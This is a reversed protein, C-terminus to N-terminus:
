TASTGEEVVGFTERVAKLEVSLALNSSSYM